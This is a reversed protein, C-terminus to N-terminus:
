GDRSATRIAEITERLADALEDFRDAVEAATLNRSLASPLSAHPSVTQFISCVTRVFGTSIAVPLDLRLLQNQLWGTYIEGRTNLVLLTLERGSGGPDTLRLSVSSSRWTRGLGLEDALRLMREYLARTCADPLAGFFEAASLTRRQPNGPADSAPAETVVSVSAPGTTEVRVVARVIETTKAVLSPLLVQGEFWAPNEYIGLEVLGFTFHRQPHEHLCEVMREVGERIGDGVILLLFRGNRLSKQVADVFDREALVEEPCRRAMYRHLSEGPALPSDQSERAARELNGYSWSGMAVAYDLIQGVVERVSEPNRWLKTEVLVPRGGASLFLNDIGALERGLSALPAFAPDIEEVPLLAPSKNLADQLFDEGVRRDAYEVRYLPLHTGDARVACPSLTRRM